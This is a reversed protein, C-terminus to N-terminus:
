DLCQVHKNERHNQKHKHKHKRTGTHSAASAPRPSSPASATSSAASPSREMLIFQIVRGDYLHADFTSNWEPYITKKKQEFNVIEGARVRVCCVAVQLQTSDFVFKAFDSIPVARKSRLARRTQFSRHFHRHFHAAATNIMKM